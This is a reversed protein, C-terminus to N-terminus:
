YLIKNQEHYFEDFIKIREYEPFTIIKCEKENINLGKMPEEKTAEKWEVNTLEEINPNGYTAFNVFMSTMLIIGKFALSDIELKFNESEMLKTRFIYSCDDIHCAGEYKEDVKTFKKYLNNETVYDFRYNFTKGQGNQLRGRVFRSMPHWKWTDNHVQVLGDMNELSPELVGYYHKKLREAYELRKPSDVELGLDRPIQRQFSKVSDFREQTKTELLYGLSENSTNSILIDIDNGWAKRLMIAINETIIANGNDYPEFVPGFPYIIMEESKEKKTLIKGTALVIEKEDTNELFKLIHKDDHPGNYGLELCLRLAWNRRPLITFANNFCTGSMMIARHFLGKSKSFVLHYGTSCSGWSEGFLTVNNPDGGFNAINEQVWKMAMIHDRFQANGPINLEPDELSLFGFVGLRYQFTVLVVNKQMFYDPGTISEFTNWSFGGGGHIWLLVPFPKTPNIENTFVNIHVEKTCDLPESWNEPPQPDAFRLKGVPKKMYPITQFSYYDRGLVSTKICGNIPGYQTQVKILKEKMPEEKTAEKWEVNTLEEINPNGYTAFNVFMSTMLIIGKFALSDIELNFNEGEVAKMKFIYACDDGHTAGRVIEDIKLFKRFLNNETVYDFRYNFTKGKGYVLRASNFRYMPHWSTTDNHVQVLGDLNAISPELVGYYHKKLREAYELRKPSDLELDLDKPIHRQFSKNSNLTEVNRIMALYGICENSTNGILIDIDNGWAKQLMLVIDETIIANGNDYPEIMPAFPFNYFEENKERETMVKPSALVIEKEDANELFKLIHKDDHPGSYGLELCLRLAWNRRPFISAAIHYPTGSMMIARHFLGKSKPSILHFGTSIGGWSEGFLTVNNPDGGFNAINEQVWKMAMIHDRFQANGPINLEPDELSLFGFVGIRYQFTVLVVNKQMFYDPGTISEFTNGTFVGGSHIWLLVPFPKTPNIENTFVNIHVGNLDGQYENNLFFINPFAPGEKTCDLPESWNEPPQPDAFRLKGVPNKMYPITQFSYYDRGLVSTKICGNIPGYQTQVKIFNKKM